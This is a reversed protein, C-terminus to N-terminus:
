GIRKGVSVKKRFRALTLPVAILIALALVWPHELM